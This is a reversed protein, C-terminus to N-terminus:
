KIYYEVNKNVMEGPCIGDNNARSTWESLIEWLTQPLVSTMIVACVNAILVLKAAFPRREFVLNDKIRPLLNKESNPPWRLRLYM